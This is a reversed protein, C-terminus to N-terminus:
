NLKVRRAPGGHLRSVLDAEGRSLGFQQELRDPHAGLRALEIAQDLAPPGASVRAEFSDVRETMGSFESAVRQMRRGTRVSISAVLEMERRLAALNSELTQCQSRWRRVSRSVVFAAILAGCALTAAALDLLTETNM